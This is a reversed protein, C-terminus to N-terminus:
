SVPQRGPEPVRQGGGGAGVGILIQIRVPGDTWRRGVEIIAELRRRTPPRLDARRAAPLCLAYEAPLRDPAAM